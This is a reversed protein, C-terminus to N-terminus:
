WWSEVGFGIARNPNALEAALNLAAQRGLDTEFVSSFVSDLSHKQCFQRLRQPSGAIAAKIVFISRWGKAYCDELQQVTAASEDLALPTSARDCLELMVEFESPPLPQELFEVIGARDAAELWQQATEPNLGGNADLRLKVGAPLSRVLRNFFNLEAAISNVGIKWKFTRGGAQWIPQWAHLAAEGTPLLYSYNFNHVEIAKSALPSVLQSWASEFAFQCAPLHSPIAAIAEETVANGLAQCLAFAEELTESGFWPLPAIEGWGETGAEDRLRLIIGERAEWIGHHTKLPQRFRRHYPHFELNYTM